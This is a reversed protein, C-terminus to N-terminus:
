SLYILLFYLLNFSSILPQWERVDRFSLLANSIGNIGMIESLIHYPVKSTV